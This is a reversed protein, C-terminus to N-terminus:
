DVPLITVFSGAAQSAEVFVYDDSLASGELCRSVTQDGHRVAWTLWLRQTATTKAASVPNEDALLHDPCAFLETIADELDAHAAASARLDDDMGLGLETCGRKLVIRPRGDIATELAVSLARHARAAEGRSTHYFYGSYLSPVYDRLEAGCKALHERGQQFRYLQFLQELTDPYVATKFCQHCRAPVFDFVEFMVHFWLFCQYSHAKAKFLFPSLRDAGNALEYRGDDGVDYLGSEVLPAIKVHLEATDV